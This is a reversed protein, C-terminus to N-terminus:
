ALRMRQSTWSYRRTITTIIKTLALTSEKDPCSVRVVEAGAESLQNIQNVTSKIDSTLTNTMSQVVIPFNGGINIDGVKIVNTVKRQIKRFPRIEM